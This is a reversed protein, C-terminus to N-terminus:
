FVKALPKIVGKILPLGRKLLPGLLRDLFGGLQIMKSIQIKSFKIGTSSNNSFVHRLHLVQRDTILSKHPFNTERDSKGIM